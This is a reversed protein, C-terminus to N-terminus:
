AVHEALSTCAFQKMKKEHLLVGRCIVVFIFFNRDQSMIRSTLVSSVFCFQSGIMARICLKMFCYTQFAIINYLARVTPKPQRPLFRRNVLFAICECLTSM